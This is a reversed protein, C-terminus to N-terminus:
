RLDDGEMIALAKGYCEPCMYYAHGHSSFRAKSTEVMPTVRHRPYGLRAGCWCCSERYNWAHPDTM